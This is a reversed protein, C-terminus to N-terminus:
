QQMRNLKLFTAIKDSLLDLPLVGSGLVVDHFCRLSENSDGFKCTWRDRLERIKREGIKYCLAQAPMCIYREVETEIETRSMALNESMYDVAQEFTWGYHHLGTDVVLRVARFMEYTLSGFHDYPNRKYNGLSEAYLGWGEVFATGDVSYMMHVPINKEIMYQFQYHHGPKGEHLSLTMTSFKPNERVSRLNLYFIGPRSKDVVSPPYYFAGPSTKEMESPVIDITHDKVNTHFYKPIVTRNIKNKVAVYDDMVANKSGHYNKPDRLMHDQFERLSVDKCYGLKDKVKHLEDRIREMERLGLAHAKEATMDHVTTMSRILYAYMARGRPIAYLGVTDRCQGLYETQLFSLMDKLSKKYSKEFYADYTKNDHMVHSPVPIYYSKNKVFDRLSQILRKCIIRPLVTRKKIGMRMKHRMSSMVKQFHLHRSILNEVDKDSNLPYMQKNLFTFGIIANEHSDLPMLDFPYKMGIKSDHIVWKLMKAEMDNRSFSDSEELQRQYKALIRGYRINHSRVYPNEFYSDVSHDGLFARMSPYLMTMEQFYNALISHKQVARM